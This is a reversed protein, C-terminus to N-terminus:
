SLAIIHQALPVGLEKCCHIISVLNQQCENSGAKGFTLFDDMYHLCATIGRKWFIWELTDSLACFIKPASRLGFPLTTDIYISGNWAMGLLARDQPHVPVIRYAQSVDVKGLLIGPGM